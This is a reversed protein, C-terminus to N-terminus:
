KFFHASSFHLSDFCSKLYGFHMVLPLSVYSKIKIVNKFIQWAKCFYPGISNIRNLSIITNVIYHKPTLKSSFKKRTSDKTIPADKTNASGHSDKTNPNNERRIRQFLMNNLPTKSPVIQWNLIKSSITFNKRNWLFLYFPFLWIM